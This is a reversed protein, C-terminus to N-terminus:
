YILCFMFHTMNQFNEYLKWWLSSIKQMGNDIYTYDKWGLLFKAGGLM